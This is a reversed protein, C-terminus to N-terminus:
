PYVLRKGVFVLLEDIMVLHNCVSFYLCVSLLKGKKSLNTKAKNTM